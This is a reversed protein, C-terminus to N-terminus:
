RNPKEIENQLISSILPRYFSWFFQQRDEVNKENYFFKQFREIGKFYASFPSVPNDSFDGAFYYFPYEQTSEKLVAPFMKPIGHTSLLSDGKENVELHYISIVQNDRVPSSVIDFWFPYQIAPPLDYKAASVAQTRIVPAESTLHTGYELIVIDDWRVLVIGSDFFPWEPGYKQHYLDIVWPPLDDHATSDLSLFYRGTWGSWELGLISQLSDRVSRSTPPPFLSFEGIILKKQRRFERLVALDSQKFGGYMLRTPKNLDVQYDHTYVGYNDVLFLLDSHNVLSAIMLSDYNQFDRAFFDGGLRPYFGFYDSNKVYFEKDRHVIREHNLIWNLAGLEMNKDDTVSKNLIVLELEHNPSTLWLIYM